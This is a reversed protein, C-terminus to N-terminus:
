NKGFRAVGNAFFVYVGASLKDVFGARILFQANVSKEDKPAQKVTKTFLKSQRMNNLRIGFNM